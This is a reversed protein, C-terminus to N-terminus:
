FLASESLRFLAQIFKVFPSVLLQNKEWTYNEGKEESVNRKVNVTLPILRGEAERSRAAVGCCM